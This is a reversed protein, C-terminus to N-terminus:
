QSGSSPSATEAYNPSQKTTASNVSLGDFHEEECYCMM